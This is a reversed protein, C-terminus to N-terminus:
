KPNTWGNAAGYGNEDRDINMWNGIRVTSNSGRNDGNSELIKVQRLGNSSRSEMVIGTHGSPNGSIGRFSIVAGRNPLGSNTYSGFYRNFPSNNAVVRATDKGDGYARPITRENAPLKVEEIYRAVLTVCQGKLDNRDLRAIGKQGNAWKFFAEPNQYFGGNSNCNPQIPPNSPPYGLMYASPVWLNQGKLKFWLADPKGNWLDNVSQGYGWGDFDVMANYAVNQSTRANLNRDSRLNIGTTSGVRRSFNESHLSTDCPPTQAIAPLPQISINHLNLGLGSFTLISATTFTSALRNTIM